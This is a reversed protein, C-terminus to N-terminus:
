GARCAAAVAPAEIVEMFVDDSYDVRDLIKYM